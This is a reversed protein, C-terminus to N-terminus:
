TLTEPAALRGSRSRRRLVADLSWAGAGTLVLATAAAALLLVLEVGRPVFFGNPLHVLFLAILMEVALCFAVLRTFLGLAVGMGGFLELFSVLPATVRPLPAGMEAFSSTVGDLGFVFLKQGGHMIFILAVVLRLVLLAADARGAEMRMHASEDSM